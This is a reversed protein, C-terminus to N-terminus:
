LRVGEIVLTEGGDKFTATFPRRLGTIIDKSDGSFVAPDTTQFLGSLYDRNRKLYYLPKKRNGEYKRNVPVLVLKDQDEPSIYISAGTNSAVRSYSKKM